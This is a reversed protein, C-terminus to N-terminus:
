KIIMNIGFTGVCLLTKDCEFKNAIQLGVIKVPLYWIVLITRKYIYNVNNKGDAFLVYKDDFIRFFVICEYFVCKM